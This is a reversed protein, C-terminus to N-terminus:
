CALLLLLLPFSFRFSQIIHHCTLSQLPFVPWTLPHHCACYYHPVPPLQMPFLHTDWHLFLSPARYPRHSLQAPRPWHTAAGGRNPKTPPDGPLIGQPAAMPCRQRHHAPASCQQSSASCADSSQPSVALSRADDCCSGRYLRSRQITHLPRGLWVGCARQWQSCRGSTQRRIVGNRGGRCRSRWRWRWHYRRTGHRAYSVLLTPVRFPRRPYIPFRPLPLVLPPSVCPLCLHLFQGDNGWSNISVFSIDGPPSCVVLRSVFDACDVPTNPELKPVSSPSGSERPM